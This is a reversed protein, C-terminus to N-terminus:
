LAKDKLLKFVAAEALGYEMKPAKVSRLGGRSAVFEIESRESSTGLFVTLNGRYVSYMPDKYWPEKTGRFSVKVPMQTSARVPEGAAQKDTAAKSIEQIGSKLKAIRESVTTM